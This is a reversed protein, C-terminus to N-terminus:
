FNLRVSAGGCSCLLLLLMSKHEECGRGVQDLLCHPPDSALLPLFCSLLESQRTVHGRISVNVVHHPYKGM